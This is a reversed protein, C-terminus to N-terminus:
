GSGPPIEQVVIEKGDAEILSPVREVHFRARFQENLLYVPARLGDQLQKLGDWGAARDFQSAVLLLRRNRHREKLRRVTAVQDPRSADFVLIRLDFPLLDLPNVRLGAPAVVNGKADTIDATVIVSPDFSRRRPETAVPLSSYELDEWYRQAARAKSAELDLAAMRQKMVEILDPETAASTPGLAGLDGRAGADVRSLMYRIGYTGRAVALRKNGEYVAIVPVEDTGYEQFRPPDITVAPVPDLKAVLAQIRKVARGFSEGKPIGRFIMVAQPYAAVEAAIERLAAEGLSWSVLIEVRRRAPRASTEAGFEPMAGELTQEEIRAAQEAMNEIASRDAESIAPPTLWAPPTENRAQEEIKRAQEVIADVRDLMADSAFASATVLLAAILSARRM